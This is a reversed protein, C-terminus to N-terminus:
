GNRSPDHAYARGPTLRDHESLFPFACNIDRRTEPLVCALFRVLEQHGSPSARDASHCGRESACPWSAAGTAGRQPLASDGGVRPPHGGFPGPPIDDESRQIQPGPNGSAGHDAQCRPSFLATESWNEATVQTTTVSPWQSLSSVPVCGKQEFHHCWLCVRKYIDVHCEHFPGLFMRRFCAMCSIRDSVPQPGYKRLVEPFTARGINQLGGSNPVPLAKRPGM